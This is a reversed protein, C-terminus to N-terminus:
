EPLTVDFSIADLQEPAKGLKELFPVWRSDDHIHSFHFDAVIEPITRKGSRAYEKELWEFASDSDGIWAYVHAIEPQWKEGWRERLERFAAEFDEQLGLEYFALATGKIRYEEDPEQQFAELAERAKNQRLLAIGIFYHAGIYDPSITLATRFAGIAEDYRGAGLYAAGLVGHAISSVPDRIAVYERLAIEDDIRGLYRALRAAHAIIYIDSSDSALARRIHEAAASFNGDFATLLGGLLAHARAYEPDIALARNAARKAENEPLVGDLAQNAYVGSLGIWAPPYDPDISLAENYLVVAQELSESANQMRLHEAQLFIAYAVSDTEYTRPADGLLSIKLKEVVAASIDDQIDFINEMARDYTESWLHTDTQADILQATIRVQNGSKRVSGELIHRVRLQEAIKTIEIGKGKFSFASSRSIVRLEPIKALLNLLEESIGDSFYEQDGEPSMDVFPLVAISREPLAAEVEAFAKEVAKETAIELQEADRKPEIVFKDIAFFTLSIALVVMIIRDLKKGTQPTISRSRDVDKELKLGEPTIEYVWSLVITPILCIALVITAIRVASDGFGFAPFITEVVQIILWAAVVYAAAVRLVNRRKLENFFSL